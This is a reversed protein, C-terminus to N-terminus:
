YYKKDLFLRMFIFYSLFLAGSFPFQFCMFDYVVHLINLALIFNFHMLSHKNNKKNIHQYNYYYHFKGIEITFKRTTMTITQSQVNSTLGRSRYRSHIVFEVLLSHNTKLFAYRELKRKNKSSGTKLKESSFSFLHTRFTSTQDDIGKWCKM